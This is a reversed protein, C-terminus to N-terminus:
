AGKLWMPSSFPVNILILSSCTFRVGLDDYLLHTRSLRETEPLWWAFGFSSMRFGGERTYHRAPPHTQYQHRMTPPNEETIARYVGNWDTQLWECWKVISHPGNDPPWFVIEIDRTMLVSWGVRGNDIEAEVIMRLPDPLMPLGHEVAELDEFVIHAVDFLGTVCGDLIMGPEPAGRREVKLRGDRVKLILALNTYPDIHLPASATRRAPIEGRQVRSRSEAQMTSILASKSQHKM